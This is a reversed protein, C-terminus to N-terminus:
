IFNDLYDNVMSFGFEKIKFIDDLHDLNDIYYLLIFFITTIISYNLHM